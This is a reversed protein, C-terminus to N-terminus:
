PRESPCWAWRVIEKWAALQAANVVLRRGRIEVVATAGSVTRALEAPPAHIFISQSVSSVADHEREGWPHMSTAVWVFPASSDVAVRLLSSDPLDSYMGRSIAGPRSETNMWFQFSLVASDAGAHATQAAQLQLNYRVNADAKTLPFAIASPMAYKTGSLTDYSAAFSPSWTANTGCIAASGAPAALRLILLLVAIDIM